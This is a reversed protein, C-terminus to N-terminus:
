HLFQKRIWKMVKIAEPDGSEKGEDDSLKVVPVGNMAWLKIVMNLAPSNEFDNSFHTGIGFSCKIKGDCYEKIEIAKDVDLNNSFIITKSMPDVGLKKYHAVLKDTYAFEDGSDNRTGDFLKAFRLNFNKLFMDIGFTDSLAIGLDANFVRTWNHMAYYDAHQLSELISSSQILEHPYTGIPKINFTKAFYVNSTGVFTSRGYDMFGELVKQQAAFSRRRRTGFDAFYCSSGSLKMIKEYAKNRQLELDHEWYEDVIQFYLESIIAMLPVEWMVASHWPGVIDIMLDGHPSLGSYVEQPNFRYNRLYELYLVSLYPCRLRLFELEEETIKLSAMSQIEKQLAEYFLPTFKNTKRRNIFKYHAQAEPYLQLVFSQLSIKYLDTDLISNIIPM